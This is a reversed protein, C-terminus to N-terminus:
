CVKGRTKGRKAIGDIKGGKAFAKVGGGKKMAPMPTRPARNMVDGMSMSGAGRMSRAGNRIADAAAQVAPATMSPRRPADEAFAPTPRSPGVSRKPASKAVRASPEKPAAAHQAAYEADREAMRQKATMLASIDDGEYQQGGADLEGGEEYRKVRKKAM